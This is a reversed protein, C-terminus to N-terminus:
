KPVRFSDNRLFRVMTATTSDSTPSTETPDASAVATGGFVLVAGIGLAAALGGVRGVYASATMQQNNCVPAWDALHCM